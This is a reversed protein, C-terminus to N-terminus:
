CCCCGIFFMFTCSRFMSEEVIVDCGSKPCKSYVCGLRDTEVRSTLYTGWCEGCVYHECGLCESQECTHKSPKRLTSPMDEKEEGGEEGGVGFTVEQHEEPNKAGQSRLRKFFEMKNAAQGEAGMFLTNAEGNLSHDWGPEAFLQELTWCVDELTMSPSWSERLSDVCVNGNSPDINPHLNNQYENCEVSLPASFPFDPPLVVNFTHTIGTWMGRAKITFSLRFVDSHGNPFNFKTKGKKKMSKLQRTIAAKGKRQKKKGKKQTKKVMQAAAAAAPVQESSPPTPPATPPATPAAAPPAAPPAAKPVLSQPTAGCLICPGGDKPFKKGVRKDVLGAKACCKTRDVFWDDTVKQQNWKYALLLLSAECPTVSLLSSLQDICSKKKKDLKDEDIVDYSVQRMTQFTSQKLSTSGKSEGGGSDDDDSIENDSDDDDSNYVYEEEDSSM